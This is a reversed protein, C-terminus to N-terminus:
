DTRDKEVVGAHVEHAVDQRMGARLAPADDGGEDGGGESLVVGFRGPGVPAPDFSSLSTVKM